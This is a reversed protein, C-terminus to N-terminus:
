FKGLNAFDNVLASPFSGVFTSSLDLVGSLLLPPLSAKVM